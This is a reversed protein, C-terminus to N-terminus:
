CVLGCCLIDENLKRKHTLETIAEWACLETNHPVHLVQQPAPLFPRKTFMKLGQHASM